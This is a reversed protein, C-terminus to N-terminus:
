QGCAEVTLFGPHSGMLRPSGLPAEIARINPLAKLSFSRGSILIPVKYSTVSVFCTPPAAAYVLRCIPYVILHILHVVM